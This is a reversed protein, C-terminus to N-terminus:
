IYSGCGPVVAHVQPVGCARGLLPPCRLQTCRCCSSHPKSSCPRSRWRWWQLTRWMLSPPSRSASHKGCRQWPRRFRHSTRMVPLSLMLCSCAGASSKSSWGRGLGPSATPSVAGAHVGIKWARGVGKMGPCAKCARREPLVVAHQAGSCATGYALWGTSRALHQRHQARRCSGVQREAREAAQQSRAGAYEQEARVKAEQAAEKRKRVEECADRWEM